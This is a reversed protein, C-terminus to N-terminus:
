HRQWESKDSVVPMDFVICELGDPLKLELCAALSTTFIAKAAPLADFGTILQVVGTTIAADRLCDQFVKVMMRAVAVPSTVSGYVTVHANRTYLVPVDTEGIKVGCVVIPQREMKIMAEPINFETIKEAVTELNDCGPNSEKAREEIERRPDAPNKPVIIENDPLHFASGKCDVTVHDMLEVKGYILEGNRDRLSQMLRTFENIRQDPLKSPLQSRGVMILDVWYDNVSAGARIIAAEAADVDGFTIPTSKFTQQIKNDLGPDIGRRISLIAGVNISVLAFDYDVISVNKVLRGARSYLNVYRTVYRPLAVQVDMAPVNVIGPRKDFGQQSRLTRREDEQSFTATGGESNAMIRCLGPHSFDIPSTKQIPM